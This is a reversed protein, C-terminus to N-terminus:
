DNTQSIVLIHKCKLDNRSVSIDYTTSIGEYPLCSYGCWVHDIDHSSIVQRRFSGPCWCGHYQCLFLPQCMLVKLSLVSDHIAWLEYVANELANGDFVIKKKNKKEILNFRILLLEANTWIIALCPSTSLGNDSGIIALKSICIQRM